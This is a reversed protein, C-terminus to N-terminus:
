TTILTCGSATTGLTIPSASDGPTAKLYDWPTIRIGGTCVEVKVTNDGSAANMPAATTHINVGSTPLASEPYKGLMTNGTFTAVTTATPYSGNLTYFATIKRALSNATALASSNNARAQIGNYAVITIAALIAIIVVVILLEVITFGRQIHHVYTNTNHKM